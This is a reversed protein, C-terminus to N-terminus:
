RDSPPGSEERSSEPAALKEFYRSVMSEYGPAYTESFSRYLEERIREPLHGWVADGLRSRLNQEREQMPAPSEDARLQGGQSEAANRSGSAPEGTGGMPAPGPGATGPPEGVPGMPSADTSTTAASDLGEAQRPSVALLAELQKVVTDQLAVVAGTATGERLQAAAEEAATRAADIAASTRAPVVDPSQAEVVGALLLIGAVGRLGNWSRSTGQRFQERTTRM